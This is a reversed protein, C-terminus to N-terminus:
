TLITSPSMWAWRRRGSHRPPASAGWASLRSCGAACHLLPAGQMYSWDGFQRQLRNNFFSIGRTLALMLGIASDAVEETGYDPVNAVPIGRERAATRDVNDFGVGCRIILKCGELRSITHHTIAINHYLMVASATEIKGHLDLESAANLADLDAIDALIEREPRMDDTIFDAVVVRFRPM